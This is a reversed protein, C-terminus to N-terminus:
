ECKSFAVRCRKVCRVLGVRAAVTGGFWCHRQNMIHRGRVQGLNDDEFETWLGTDEAAVSESPPQAASLSASLAAANPGCVVALVIALEPEPIPLEETQSSNYAQPCYLMRAPNKRPTHVDAQGQIAQLTSSMARLQLNTPQSLPCVTDPPLRLNNFHFLVSPCGLLNTSYAFCELTAAQM